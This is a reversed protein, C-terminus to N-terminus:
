EPVFESALFSLSVRAGLFGGSAMMSSMDKYLRETRKDLNLEGLLFCGGSESKM